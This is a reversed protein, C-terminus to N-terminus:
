TYSADSEVASVLAVCSCLTRPVLWSALEIAPNLGDITEIMGASLRPRSPSMTKSACPLTSPALPPVRAVNRPKVASARVTARVRRM